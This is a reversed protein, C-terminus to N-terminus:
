SGKCQSHCKSTHKNLLVRRLRLVEKALQVVKLLMSIKTKIYREKRAEYAQKVMPGIYKLSDTNETHRIYSWASGGGHTIDTDWSNVNIIKEVKIGLETEVLADLAHHFEHWLTGLSNALNKNDFRCIEVHYDKFFNSFNEGWVKKNPSQNIWNDRHVWFVIHDYRGADKKHVIDVNKKIFGYPLSDFYTRNAGEVHTYDLEEIEEQVIVGSNDKFIARFQKLVEDVQRQKIKPDKLILVRV